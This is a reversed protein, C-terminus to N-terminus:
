KVERHRLKGIYFIPLIFPIKKMPDGHPKLSDINYTSLMADRTPCACVPM